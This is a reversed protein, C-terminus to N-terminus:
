VLNRRRVLASDATREHGQAQWSRGDRLHGLVAPLTRGRGGRQTRGAATRHPGAAGARGNRRERHDDRGRHLELQCCAPGTVTSAGARGAGVQFSQTLDYYGQKTATVTYVGPRMLIRDGIPLRFWGGAIRIEDAPGPEVSFQISKSTFLLFSATFLFLLAVVLIGRVPAKSAAQDVPAAKEAARRFAQPAIAEEESAEVFEPAQTVYASDELRVDLVLQEGVSIRIESGFYDLVDGDSLRSSTALPQGNLLMSESRGLPQVFPSGDLLDLQIVPSGGPGPLRIDSDSATGLRLPLDAASIRREGQVDRILLQDFTM